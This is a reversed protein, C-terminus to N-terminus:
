SSASISELTLSRLSHKQSSITWLHGLDICHEKINYYPGNVLMWHPSCGGVGASIEMEVLQRAHKMIAKLMIRATQTDRAFYHPTVSMYFGKLDGFVREAAV